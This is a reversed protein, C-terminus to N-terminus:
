QGGWGPRLRLLDGDDDGCASSRAVRHGHPHVGVHMRARAPLHEDANRVADLLALHEADRRRGSRRVHVRSRHITRRARHGPFPLLMSTLLLLVVATPLLHLSPHTFHVVTVQLTVTLTLHM